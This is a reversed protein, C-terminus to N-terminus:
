LLFPLEKTFRWPDFYFASFIKSLFYISTFDHPLEVQQIELIDHCLSPLHSKPPPNRSMDHCSPIKFPFLIVGFAM